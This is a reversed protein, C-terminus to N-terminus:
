SKLLILKEEFNSNQAEILLLRREILLSIKRNLKLDKTALEM